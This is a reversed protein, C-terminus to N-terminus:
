KEHQFIVFDYLHGSDDELQLNLSRSEKELIQHFYNPGLGRMHILVGIEFADDVNRSVVQQNM